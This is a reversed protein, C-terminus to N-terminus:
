YRLLQGERGTSAGAHDQYKGLETRPPQTTQNANLPRYGGSMGSSGSMAVVSLAGNILEPAHEAILRGIRSAATLIRGRSRTEPQDSPSIAVNGAALASPLVGYVTTASGEAGPQLPSPQVNPRSHSLAERPQSETM